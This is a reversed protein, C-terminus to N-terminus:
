PRVLEVWYEGGMGEATYGQTGQYNIYWWATNDACNPGALVEFVAGGPIQGVVDGGTSPLSRLRNATGPTVRAQQGPFIRSSMFGPCVPQAALMMAELQAFNPAIPTFNALVPAATAGLDPTALVSLRGGISMSGLIHDQMDPVTYHHVIIQDANDQLALFGDPTGILEPPQFGLNIPNMGGARNMLMGSGNNLALVYQGDGVWESQGLSLDVINPDNFIVPSELSVEHEGSQSGFTPLFGPSPLYALINQFPFYASPETSFPYDTSYTRAFMERTVALQEAFISFIVGTVPMYAFTDPSWQAYEGEFPPECAYCNPHLYIGNANWEGLMYWGDISSTLGTSLMTATYDTFAGTTVDVVGFVGVYPFDAGMMETMISVAFRTGAPDFGSMTYAIPRDVPLVLEFFNGTKLDAVRPPYTTLYDASMQTVVAYRLNAAVILQNLNGGPVIMGAPLPIPAQVGAPTVRYINWNAGFQAAFTVEWAGAQASVLAPAILLVLLLFWLIRRIM